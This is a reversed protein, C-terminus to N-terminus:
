QAYAPVDTHWKKPDNGIFYNVKGPMEGTGVIQPEPNAGEFRLRVATLQQKQNAERAKRLAALTAARHRPSLDVRVPNSLALVAEQATLFLEYGSGHSLYRVEGATQGQNEEFSLPLKNYAGVWRSNPKEYAARTTKDTAMGTTAAKGPRARNGWTGCVALLLLGCILTGIVTLKVTNEGRGGRRKMT